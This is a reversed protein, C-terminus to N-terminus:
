ITIGVADLAAVAAELEPTVVRAAAVLVKKRKTLEAIEVAARDNIQAVRRDIEAVEKSIRDLIGM